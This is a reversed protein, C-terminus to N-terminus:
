ADPDIQREIADWADDVKKDLARLAKLQEATTGPHAGLSSTINKVAEYTVDIQDVIIPTLETLTDIVKGVTGSGASGKPILPIITKILGLITGTASKIAEINM